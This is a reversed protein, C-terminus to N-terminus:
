DRPGITRGSAHFLAMPLAGVALGLLAWGPHRAPHAGWVCLGAVVLGSWGAIVNIVPSSGFVTPFREAVIGKTFHPYANSALLGGLLALLVTQWMGIEM